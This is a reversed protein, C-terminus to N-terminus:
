NELKLLNSNNQSQEKLENMYQQHQQQQQQQIQEMQNQHEASKKQNIATQLQSALQQNQTHIKLHKNLHDSRMFRKSCTPCEFKKEGKKNIQFFFLNYVHVYM